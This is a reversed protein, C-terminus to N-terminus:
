KSVLIESKFKALEDEMVTADLKSPYQGSSLLAIAKEQSAVAEAQNAGLWYWHAIENYMSPIDFLEPYTMQSILIQYSKAGLIYIEPMLRSKKSFSDIVEVTADFMDYAPNRDLMQTGYALAQAQDVDLLAELKFHLITSTKELLPEQAILKDIIQLRLEPTGYLSVQKQSHSDYKSDRIIYYADRAISDLLIKEKRQVAFRELDWSGDVIDGLVADLKSPHGVWALRGEGDVVFTRPIGSDKEDAAIIWNEVMRKNDDVAVHFSMNDWMKEVFQHIDALTTEPKEYINVGIFTVDGKYEYALKSMHPMAAICPVCWTAWFELVYVQGKEFRTIADGKVWEKVYLAPAPDSITLSTAPVDQATSAFSLLCLIPFLLKKFRMPM